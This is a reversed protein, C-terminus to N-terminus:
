GIVYGALGSLLIVVVPNIRFRMTMILVVVFIIASKLDVISDKGLVVAAAAILGLLAPRIGSLGAQFISHKRFSVYLRTMLLMLIFPFVVIGSTAAFSGWFGGVKYGVFTAANIAIPGPTTQSIAVIDIFDTNTLWHHQVVVEQQIFPLMAYGGGFSFLGIKAFTLFLILYIM